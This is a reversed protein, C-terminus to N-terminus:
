APQVLCLELPLGPAIQHKCLSGAQGHTLKDRNKVEVFRSQRSSPDFVMLDFNSGPVEFVELENFAPVYGGQKLVAQAFEKHYPSSGYKDAGTAVYAQHAMEVFPALLEGAQDELAKILGHYHAALAEKSVALDFLPVPAVITEHYALRTPPAPPLAVGALDFYLHGTLFIAYKAADSHEIHLDAPLNWSHHASSRGDTAINPNYRYVQSVGACVYFNVAQRIFEFAVGENWSALCGQTEYYRKAVLEVRSFTDEGFQFSRSSEATVGAVVTVPLGLADFADKPTKYRSLLEAPRLAAPSSEDLNTATAVTM